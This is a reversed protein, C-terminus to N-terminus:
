TLILYDRPRLRSTSYFRPMTSHPQRDLPPLTIKLAHSLIDNNHGKPQPRTKTCARYQPLAGRRSMPDIRGQQGKKAPMPGPLPSKGISTLDRRINREPQGEITTPQYILVLIPRGVPILGSRHPPNIPGRPLEERINKIIKVAVPLQHAIAPPVPLQQKGTLRIDRPRSHIELMEKILAQRIRLELHRILGAPVPHGPLQPVPKNKRSNSSGSLSCPAKKTASPSASPPAM